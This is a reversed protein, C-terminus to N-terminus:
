YSFTDEWTYYPEPARPIYEISKDISYNWWYTPPKDPGYEKPVHPPLGGMPDPESEVWDKVYPTHFIGYVGYHWIKWKGDDEKIFDAARKSWCWYGRLKGEAKGATDAGVVIWLGKATKGDGAVEVIAEGNSDAMLMGPSRVSGGIKGYTLFPHFELYCRKVSESGEWIGFPGISVRVGPTKLAFLDLCEEVQGFLLKYSYRNMINECERAARVRANELELIALREEVSKQEM